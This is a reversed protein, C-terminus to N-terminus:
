FYVQFGTHNNFTFYVFAIEKEGTDVRLKINYLLFYSLFFILDVFFM